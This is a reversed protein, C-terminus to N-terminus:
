QEVAVEALFPELTSEGSAQGAPRDSLSGVTPEEDEVRTDVAGDVGSDDVLPPRLCRQFSRDRTPAPNHLCRRCRRRDTQM